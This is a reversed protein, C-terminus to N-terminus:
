HREGLLQGSRLLSLLEPVSATGLKRSIRRLSAYINSRSTHLDSAAELVTPASVVAELLARQKDTLQDLHELAHRLSASPPAKTPTRDRELASLRPRPQSDASSAPSNSEIRALMELARRQAQRRQPPEPEALADRVSSRLEDLNIPKALYRVAGEIGGKVRDMAGSLATLMMVPTSVLASDSESKLQQLVEWGDVGPMMVDLLILDPHERRAVDLAVAGDEAEIVVHGDQELTMRTLLRIDEEDDVVLITAM